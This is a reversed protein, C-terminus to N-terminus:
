QAPLLEHFVAVGPGIQWVFQLWDSHSFSREFASGLSNFHSTTALWGLSLVVEASELEVVSEVRVPGSVRNRDVLIVLSVAV